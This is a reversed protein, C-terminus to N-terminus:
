GGNQQSLQLASPQVGSIWTGGAVAPQLYSLKMLEVYALKMWNRGM